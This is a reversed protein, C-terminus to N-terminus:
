VCCKWVICAPMMVYMFDDRYNAMCFYWFIGRFKIKLYVIYFVSFWIWLHFDFNM